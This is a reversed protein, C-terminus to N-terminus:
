PTLAKLPTALGGHVVYTGTAPNYAYGNGDAHYNGSACGSVYTDDYVIQVVVASGNYLPGADGCATTGKWVIAWAGLYGAPSSAGNAKKTQQGYVAADTLYARTTYTTSGVTWNSWNSYVTAASASLAGGLVFGGVLAAALTVRFGVGGGVVRESM